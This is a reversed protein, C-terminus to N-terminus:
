SKVHTCDQTLDYIEIMYAQIPILFTHFIFKQRIQPQSKM